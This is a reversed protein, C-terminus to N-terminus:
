KQVTAIRLIDKKNSINQIRCKKLDNRGEKFLSDPVVRTELHYNQKSSFSNNRKMNILMYTYGTLPTYLPTTRPNFDGGRCKGILRKLIM